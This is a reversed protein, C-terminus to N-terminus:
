CRRLDYREQPSPEHDIHQAPLGQHHKELVLQVVAAAAGAAVLVTGDGPDM